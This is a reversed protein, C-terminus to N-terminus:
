GPRLIKDVLDQNLDYECMGLIEILGFDKSLLQEVHTTSNAEVIAGLISAPIHQELFKTCSIDNFSLFINQVIKPSVSKMDKRSRYDNTMELLKAKIETEIFDEAWVKFEIYYQTM